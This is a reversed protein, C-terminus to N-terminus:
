SYDIAGIARAMAKRTVRTYGATTEPSAHGAIEQVTRLDGTADLATALATHRLVHTPVPPLGATSSVERVWGWVTTPNQPGGFRGPFV